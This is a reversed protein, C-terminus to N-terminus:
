PHVLMAMAAIFGHSGGPRRLAYQAPRKLQPEAEDDQQNRGATKVNAASDAIRALPM